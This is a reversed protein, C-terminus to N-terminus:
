GKVVKGQGLKVGGDWFEYFYIGAPLPALQMRAQSYLVQQSFVSQGAANYLRFQGNLPYYDGLDFVLVDQVPNPFTTFTLAQPDDVAVTGLELTRCHTDSGLDNSVTLCVEYIGPSVYTHDPHRDTSMGGDGFTWAWTDPEYFSLDQFHFALTDEPNRDIRYYARPFNNIGLSDCPSGDIPGLRYNPHNALTFANYNPLHINHQIFECDGGEEDPQNIVHLVKVGSPCNLYIKGDPALQAQFFRSRFVGWESYGDYVAVTDKTSFIDEAWLDYQYVHNYHSVYLYQSSHSIALGGSVAFTGVSTQRHNSLEGTCRDFDFIDLIHDEDFEVMNFRIYNNGDPSFTVQGIGASFLNDSFFTDVVTVELPSVLISYVEYSNYKAAIMWWDRGNAHRCATLEGISLSDILAIEEDKVLVRGSGNYDPDITSYTIHDGIIAQETNYYMRFYYVLSDEIADIPLFLNSQTQIYAPDNIDDGFQGEQIIEGINNSVTLGNAALKLVGVYDSFSTGAGNFETSNVQDNEIFLDGQFFSLISIGFSDNPESVSGGNYGMMWHNDYFQAFSCQPTLVILFLSLFPYFIKM